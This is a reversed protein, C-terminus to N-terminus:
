LKIKPLKKITELPFSICKEIQGFFTIRFHKSTRESNQLQFFFWDNKYFAFDLIISYFDDDRHFHRSFHTYLFNLSHFTDSKSCDDDRFIMLFLLSRLVKNQLLFGFFETWFLVIQNLADYILGKKRSKKFIWSWESRNINWNTKRSNRRWFLGELDITDGDSDCRRMSLCAFVKLLSSTISVVRDIAPNIRFTFFADCHKTFKTKSPSDSHRTRYINYFHALLM